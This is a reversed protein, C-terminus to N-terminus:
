RDPGYLHCSVEVAGVAAVPPPETPCIDMVSPCRPHFACGTPRDIPSPVEGALVLSTRSRQRVPDPVPVSGLLARTYPHSPGDYIPQADGAEVIEGLYMVAIRDALIRLTSLDHSIFLYTLKLRDKLDALLNIIDAKTSVDLASVPEDLVLLGPELALARAISVRQLQGGSLESPYRLRYDSRLGVQELLEDVRRRREARNGIRHAIFPESMSAEITSTPAFSSYPDQFVMQVARRQQRLDRGRLTTIDVGNIEVRGGTPRLLGGVINAITSKGSGSEGVIGITEGAHVTLSVDNVATLTRKDFMGDGRVEFEKVLHEIRIVPTANM